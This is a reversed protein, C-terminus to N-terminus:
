PIPVTFTAITGNGPKSEINLSGNLRFARLRINKLGNGTYTTRTDFGVGNDRVRLQWLSDLRSIEIEVRSARSHKAINALMEKYLLFIDQRFQPPLTRTLHAQASQFRCEIGPLMANATEKMRLILDQLTDNEPNIFWAIERISSSTQGSIRSIAAVDDAAETGASGGKQLKRALLSITSLNSGVEDHLDAALRLRLNELQRFRALRVRHIGLAGLMVTAVIALKFWWTQWVHPLVVFEVFGGPESWTSESNRALVRFRYKGPYVNSYHASRRAGAEVWDTDVGELQYKFRTREPTRFALATYQFELEGRGPPIRVPAAVSLTEAPPFAQKDTLIRELTVPPPVPNEEKLSNPDIVSLGKVTAFWLRGDKSKWASPKAVMSCVESALGDPNGYAICHIANISGNDLRDLDNRHVRFIGRICTMWLWGNEDEVIEYISDNFLGRQSTYATFRGDRLRDLGGGSTGIWLNGHHDAYLAGTTTNSLGDATTFRVLTDQRLRWLGDNTGIWLDGQDDECIARIVEQPMGHETGFPRITQGEMRYLGRTTGLWYAGSRDQHVVRVAGGTLGDADTYRHVSQQDFRFLGGDWDSGAWVRQASDECLGLALSSGDCTLATFVGDKLRNVGGGWTAAWIVGDKGELVSTVNNCSLGNQQTYSTFPHSNLRILGDRSGIWLNGERDEFIANVLDFAQGQGDLQGIIKPDVFQSLGGYSGVWLNGRRDRQIHTIINNAPSDTMVFTTVQGKQIRSLGNGAGVWITGDPDCFLARADNIRLGDAMLFRRIVVGDKWCYVGTPTALWLQGEQDEVMGRVVDSALGSNTGFNVFKGDRYRSLGGLTAFWLSGDRTELTPGLCSDNALGDAKGYRTFKGDKLRLMGGRGTAIWLSGDQGEQLGLINANLMEPVNNKNFGVFRVGDFRALGFQTGVWLYGDRTQLVAQVCSHPLGDDMRWLRSGYQSVVTAGNTAQALLYILLFGVFRSTQGYSLLPCTKAERFVQGLIITADRSTFHSTTALQIAIQM